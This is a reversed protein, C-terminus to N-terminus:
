IGNFVDMSGSALGDRDRDMGNTPYACGYSDYDLYFDTTDNAYTAGAITADLLAACVPDDLDVATERPGTYSVPLVTDPDTWVDIPNPVWNCNLDQWPWAPPIFPLPPTPCALAAPSGLLTLGLLLRAVTSAPPM